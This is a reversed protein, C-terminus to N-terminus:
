LGPAWLPSVVMLLGVGLHGERWGVLLTLASFALTLHYLIIKKLYYFCYWWTVVVVVVVVRERERAM